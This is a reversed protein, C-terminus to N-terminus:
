SRLLVGLGVGRKVSRNLKKFEFGPLTLDIDQYEDRLWTETFFSVDDDVDLLIESVVSVKNCVSRTNLLDLKLSPITTRTESLRLYHIVRPIPEAFM